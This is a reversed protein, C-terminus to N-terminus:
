LEIPTMPKMASNRKKGPLYGMRKRVQFCFVNALILLFKLQPLLLFNAVAKKTAQKVQTAPKLWSCKHEHVAKRPTITFLEASIHM